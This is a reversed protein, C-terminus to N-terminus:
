EAAGGEGKPLRKLIPRLPPQLTFTEGVARPRDVELDALVVRPGHREEHVARLHRM